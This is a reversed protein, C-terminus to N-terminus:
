KEEDEDPFVARVVHKAMFILWIALCVELLTIAWAPLSPEPPPTM